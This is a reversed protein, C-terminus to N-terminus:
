GPSFLSKSVRTSISPTRQAWSLAPHLGHHEYRSFYCISWGGVFGIYNGFITLMSANLCQLSRPVVLIVPNIAM